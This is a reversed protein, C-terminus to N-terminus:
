SWFGECARLRAASSSQRTLRCGQGKKCVRALLTDSFRSCAGPLAAEGSFFARVNFFVARTARWGPAREHKEFPSRILCLASERTLRTMERWSRMVFPQASRSRVRGGGSNNFSHAGILTPATMASPINADGWVIWERPMHRGCPARLPGDAALVLQRVCSAVTM